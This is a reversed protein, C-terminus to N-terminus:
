SLLLAFLSSSSSAVTIFTSARMRGKGHGNNQRISKGGQSRLAGGHNCNDTKPQKPRKKNDATNIKAETAQRNRPLSWLLAASHCASHRPIPKGVAGEATGVCCITAAVATGEAIGVRSGEYRGDATGDLCGERCGVAMGVNDGDPIGEPSGEKVGEAMGDPCGVEVGVLLGDNMGEDLLVPFAVAVLLLVPFAVSKSKEVLSKGLLAVSEGLVTLTVCDLSCCGVAVGEAEAAGLTTGRGDRMGEAAGEPCGDRGVPM